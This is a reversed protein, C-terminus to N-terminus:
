IRSQGVEGAAGHYGIDNYEFQEEPLTYGDGGRGRQARAAIPNPNIDRGTDDEDRKTEGGNLVDLQQFVGRTRTGRMVKVDLGLACGTAVFGLLAFSFLAKYMRCVSVGTDSEWSDADCVHALTGSCWWALLAFSVTWLLTLVSNLILNLSASLGHRFHLVITTTLAALTLLSVTMLLIFTWPLRYGDHALERLFYFMISAVVLSSLLQACRITHFPLFPYATPKVRTKRPAM